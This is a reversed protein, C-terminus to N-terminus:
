ILYINKRYRNRANEITKESPFKEKFEKETLCIISDDGEHKSLVYNCFSKATFKKTRVLWNQLAPNIDDINLYIKFKSGNFLLIETENIKM